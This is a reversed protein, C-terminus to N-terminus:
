SGNIRIAIVKIKEKKRRKNRHHHGNQDILKTSLNENWIKLNRKKKKMRLIQMLIVTNKQWEYWNTM